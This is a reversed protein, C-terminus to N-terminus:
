QSYVPSDNGGVAQPPVGTVDFLAGQLLLYRTDPYRRANRFFLKSIKFLLLCALVLM